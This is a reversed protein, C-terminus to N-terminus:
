KVIKKSTASRYVYRSRMGVFAARQDQLGQGASASPNARVRNGRDDSGADGDGDGAQLINLPPLPRVAAPSSPQFAARRLPAGEAEAGAATATATAGASGATALYADRFPSSSEGTALPPVVTRMKTAGRQQQHQQQQQAQYHNRSPVRQLPNQAMVVGCKADADDAKGLLSVGDADNKEASM